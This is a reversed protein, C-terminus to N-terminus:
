QTLPRTSDQAPPLAEGPLSSSRASLFGPLHLLASSDFLDTLEGFPVGCRLLLPRVWSDKRPLRTSKLHRRQHHHPPPTPGSAQKWDIGGRDVSSWSLAPDLAFLFLPRGTHTERERRLPTEQRQKYLIDQLSLPATPTFHLSLIEPDKVKRPSFRMLFPLLSERM